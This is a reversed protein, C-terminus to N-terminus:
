PNQSPKAVSLITGLRLPKWAVKSREVPTEMPVEAQCSEAEGPEREM